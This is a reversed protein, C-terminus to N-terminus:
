SRINQQVKGCPKKGFLPFGATLLGSYIATLINQLKRYMGSIAPLYFKKVGAQAAREMVKDIDTDFEETYLHCHTDIM